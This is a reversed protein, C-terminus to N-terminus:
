SGSRPGTEFGAVMEGVLHDERADLESIAVPVIDGPQCSKTPAFRVPLFTEAKGMVWEKEVNEVLVSVVKGLQERLTKVLIEQGVRRLGESRAKVIEKAIRGPQGQGLGKQALKLAATGPRDSYPFVHLLSFGGERVLELSNQFAEETETPFGVIIDAGLVLDQRLHRAKEVRELVDERRHRRAMRRLIGNDGSQLSIHLHPCVRKESGLLQILAEDLDMPDLSSLRLRTLQPIELLATVLHALSFDPRLDRGYAGLDIGTLVLERYGSALFRSAQAMVQSLPTSRSPGRVSPILCFTCKGDCGNQVQIFARARDSFHDLIPPAVESTTFTKKKATAIKVRTKSLPQRISGAEAMEAEVGGPSASEKSLPPVVMEEVPAVQVKVEQHPAGPQSPPQSAMEALYDGLREKEANGIVLAVGPLQALSEPSRQAYCGTVIIRAAPHERAARRIQQRAQRDSEATVSCTHVVILDALEGKAVPQFGQDTGSKRMLESEFQNVRCGMTIVKFRKGSEEEPMSAPENM